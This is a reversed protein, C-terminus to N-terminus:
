GTILIEQSTRIDTPSCVIEGFDPDFGCQSLSAQFLARGGHFVAAEGSGVVRVTVSQTDDACAFSADGDGLVVAAGRAQTVAAIIVGSDFGQDCILSIAVPVDVAVGGAVLKARPGAQVSGSAANAPIGPVVVVAAVTLAVALQVARRVTFM